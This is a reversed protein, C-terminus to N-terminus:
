IIILQIDEVLILVSIIISIFFFQVPEYLHYPPCSNKVTVALVRAVAESIFTYIIFITLLQYSTDLKRYKAMGIGIVLLLILFYLYLRPSM